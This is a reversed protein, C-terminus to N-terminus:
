DVGKPTSKQNTRDGGWSVATEVQYGYQELNERLAHRIISVMPIGEKKAKDELAAYLSDTLTLNMRKTMDITYWLQCTTDIPISLSYCTTYLKM